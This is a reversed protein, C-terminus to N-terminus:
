FMLQVSSLDKNQESGYGTGLAAGPNWLSWLCVGLSRPGCVRKRVVNKGSWPKPNAKLANITTQMDINTKATNM